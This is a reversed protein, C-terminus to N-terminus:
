KKEGVANLVRLFREINNASARVFSTPVSMMTGLTIGLQVERTPLEAISIVDDCSIFKASFYGGLIKVKKSEQAFEKLTKASSSIEDSNVFIVAHEGNGFIDQSKNINLESQEISKIFLTNKVVNYVANNGSLKMKINSSDSGNMSTPAVFYLAKASKIREVYSEVTQQKKQRLKSM